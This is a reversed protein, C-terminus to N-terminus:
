LGRATLYSDLRTSRAVGLVDSWTDRNDSTTWSRRALAAQVHQARIDAEPLDLASSLVSVPSKLLDEYKVLKLNPHTFGLWTSLQQCLVPIYHDIVLDMADDLSRATFLRSKGNAMFQAFSRAVERLDRYLFLVRSGSSLIREPPLVNSVAPAVLFCPFSGLGHDVSLAQQADSSRDKNTMMSYRSATRKIDLPLDFHTLCPHEQAYAADLKRQLDRKSVAELGYAAKADLAAAVAGRLFM